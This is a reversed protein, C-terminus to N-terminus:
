ELVEMVADMIKESGTQNFHLGDSFDSDTLLSNLDIFICDYKASLKKITEEKELRYTNVHDYKSLIARTIGLTIIIVPKESAIIEQLLYEYRKEFADLSRNFDNTGLGIVIINYDYKNVSDLRLIGGISTIGGRAHNYTTVPMYNTDLGATRSDGLFMVKQLTDKNYIKCLEIRDNDTPSMDKEDILKFTSVKTFEEEVEDEYCGVLGFFLFVYFGIVMKKM